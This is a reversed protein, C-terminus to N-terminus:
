SHPTNLHYGRPSHVEYISTPLADAMEGQAFFIGKFLEKGSYEPANDNPAKTCATSIFLTALFCGSFLKRIM